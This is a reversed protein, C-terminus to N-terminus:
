ASSLIFKILDDLKVTALAIVTDSAGYYIKLEGDDELIAATPFIVNPRFGQKEYDLEPVLLPEKAVGIVKSPDKLDLLMAGGYYTKKWPKGAWDTTPNNPDIDVAHIIVLWGHETKIPPAGPGIKANVYPIDETTLVVKHKGWYIMDPSYSIWIDFLEKQRSYLPFPRELRVYLGDIKEPFLVLNRNDPTTTHIVEVKDLDSSVRAICGCTGCRTDIACCLYLTDELEILRPDYVRAVFDDSWSFLPKEEVKFNIGDESIAVGLNIGWLKKQEEDGYDNRFVMVYKGRYKIVAPNFVLTSHYPVDSAKLIPNQPYKKVFAPTKLAKPDAM